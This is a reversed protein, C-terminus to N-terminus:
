HQYIATQMQWQVTIYGEIFSDMYKDLAICLENYYQPSFTGDDLKEVLELRIEELQEATDATDMLYLYFYFNKLM